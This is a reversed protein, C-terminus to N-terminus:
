LSCTHENKILTSTHTPGTTYNKVEYGSPIRVFWWGYQSDNTDHCVVINSHELAVNAQRYRSDGHGDVMILDFRCISELYNCAAFPGPLYLLQVNKYNMDKIQDYWDRSNMEVSVVSECHESFFRTSYKGPGFEFVSKVSYKRCVEELVPLHTAYDADPTSM